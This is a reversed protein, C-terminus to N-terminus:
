EGVTAQARLAHGQRLSQIYWDLDFNASVAEAVECVMDCTSGGCPCGYPFIEELPDRYDHTCGPRIHRPDLDPVPDSAEALRGRAIWTSSRANHVRDALRLKVIQGRAPPDDWTQVTAEARSDEVTVRWPGRGYRTVDMVRVYVDCTAGTACQEWEAARADLTLTGLHAM